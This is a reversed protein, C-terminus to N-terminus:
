PAPTLTLALATGDSQMVAAVVDSVRLSAADQPALVLAPAARPAENLWASPAALTLPAAGDHMIEVTLGGIEVSAGLELDAVDRDLQAFRGKDFLLYLAVAAGVEAVALGIPAKGPIPAGLAVLATKASFELWSEEDGGDCLAASSVDLYEGVVAMIASKQEECDSMSSIEVRYLASVPASAGGAAVAFVDSSMLVFRSDARCGALALAAVVFGAWNRRM